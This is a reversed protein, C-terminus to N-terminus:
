VDDLVLDFRDRFLILFHEKAYKIEPVTFKNRNDYFAYWAQTLEKSDVAEDGAILYQNFDM